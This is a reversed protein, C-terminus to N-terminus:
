LGVDRIRRHDVRHRVGEVRGPEAAVSTASDGPEEGTGSDFFAAWMEEGSAADYAFTAYDRGYFRFDDTFGTVFM